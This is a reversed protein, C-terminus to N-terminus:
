QPTRTVSVKGTPAQSLSYVLNEVEGMPRSKLYILLADKLAVPIFVADEQTTTPQPIKGEEIMNQEQQDVEKKKAM